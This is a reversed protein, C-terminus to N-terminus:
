YRNEKTKKDAARLAGLGNSKLVIVVTLIQAESFLIELLQLEVYRSFDNSSIFIGRSRLGQQQGSQRGANHGTCARIPEFYVKPLSADINGEDRVWFMVVAKVPDGGLNFPTGLELLYSLKGLFKKKV